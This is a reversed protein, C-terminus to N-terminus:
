DKIVKHSPLLFSKNRTEIFINLTSTIFGSNKHDTILKLFSRSHLLSYIYINKWIVWVTVQCIQFCVKIKKSKDLYQNM